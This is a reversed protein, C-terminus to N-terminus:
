TFFINNQKRGARLDYYVALVVVIATITFLTTLELTKVDDDRLLLHLYAEDLSFTKVKGTYANIFIFERGKLGNIESFYYPTVRHTGPDILIILTLNRKVEYEGKMTALTENFIRSAEDYSIINGSLSSLQDMYNTLYPIQNVYMFARGTNIIEVTLPHLVFTENVYIPANLKNQMIYYIKNQTDNNVLKLSIISPTNNLQNLAYTELRSIDSSLIEGIEQEMRLLDERTYHELLQPNEHISGILSISEIIGASNNVIIRMDVEISYTANKYKPPTYPIKWYVSYVPRDILKAYWRDSKDTVIPGVSENVVLSYTIPMYTKMFDLGTSLAVSKGSVSLWKGGGTCVTPVPRTGFDKYVVRYGAVAVMASTLVASVFTLILLILPIRM